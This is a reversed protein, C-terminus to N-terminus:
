PGPGVHEFWNRGKEAEEEGEGLHMISISLPILPPAKGEGGDEWGQVPSDQAVLGQMVHCLIGGPLLFERGPFRAAWCLARM